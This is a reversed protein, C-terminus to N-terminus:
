NGSPPQHNRDAVLMGLFEDLDIATFIVNLLGVEASASKNLEDSFMSPLFLSNFLSSHLNFIQPHRKAGDKKFDFSYGLYEITVHHYYYELVIKQWMICLFLM